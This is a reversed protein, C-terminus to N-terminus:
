VKGGAKSETEGNQKNRPTSDAASGPRKRPTGGGDGSAKDPTGSTKQTTGASTLRSRAVSAKQASEIAKRASNM